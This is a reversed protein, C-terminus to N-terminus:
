MAWILVSQWRERCALWLVPDHGLLKRRLGARRKAGGYRWSYSWSKSASVAKIRKEQWTRPALLSALLFMLWAIAQSILLGRWYLSRGWDGASVFAYGPSTVSLAPIFLRAAGTWRRISDTLPGGGIWVLMVLLTGALAKQSDRSMASVFLGAALSCVLGNLLALSTKWFQAGT